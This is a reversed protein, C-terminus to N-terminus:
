IMAVIYKREEETLISYVALPDSEYTKRLKSFSQQIEEESATPKLDLVEYHNLQAVSKM